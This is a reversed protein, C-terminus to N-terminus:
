IIEFRQCVAAELVIIDEDRGQTLVKPRLTGRTV